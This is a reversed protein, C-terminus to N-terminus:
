KSHFDFYYSRYTVRWDASARQFNFTRRSFKLASFVFSHFYPSNGPLKKRAFQNETKCNPRCGHAEIHHETGGSSLFDKLFQLQLLRNVPINEPFNHRM